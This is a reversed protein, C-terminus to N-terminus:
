ADADGLSVDLAGLRSPAIVAGDQLLHESLQRREADLVQDDMFDVAEGPVTKVVRHEVLPQEVVANREDRRALVDVARRGSNSEAYGIVRVEAFTIDDAVDTM